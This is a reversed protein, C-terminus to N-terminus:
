ARPPPTPPQWNLGDHMPPVFARLTAHGALWVSFAFDFAPAFQVCHTACVVMPCRAAINCCSCDQNAPASADATGDMSAMPAMGMANAAQVPALALGASIFVALITRFLKM